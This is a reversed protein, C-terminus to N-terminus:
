CNGLFDVGCECDYGVDFADPVSEFPVQTYHKVTLDGDQALVYRRWDHDHM